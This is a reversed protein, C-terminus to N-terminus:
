KAMPDLSRFAARLQEDTLRDLQTLTPATADFGAIEARHTKMWAVVGRLVRENAEGHAGGGGIPSLISGMATRPAPAFAVESLKARFELEENKSIGHAKDISHRGEHAWISSALKDASATRVFAARLADGTLGESELRARLTDAYQQRLRLTLGTLAAVNDGSVRTRDLATDRQVEDDFRKRAVPDTTRRWLNWPGDVYMPRVQYM